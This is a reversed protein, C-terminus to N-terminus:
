ARPQRAALFGELAIPLGLCRTGHRLLYGRDGLRAIGAEIEASTRDPVSTLLAPVSTVGDAALLIYAEIPDLVDVHPHAPSARSDFVAVRGDARLLVLSSSAHSSRWADVAEVLVRSYEPLSRTARHDAEFFYALDNVTEAPLGRHVDSYAPYPRVREFGAESADEFNPSFRDLRIESCRAPPPLHHLFPLLAAMQRYEAPDEGPFGCLINWDVAIDLEMCWKLLQVNQLVSVGKRMIDLIQDSLSEIGPQIRTVGAARLLEVRERTVNSKIEYFLSVPLDLDALRPLLTAYYRHDMINDVFAVEAGPRALAISVVEAIVDEPPRSRFAMTAGNLGCFTCHHKAGWWCGRSSETPVETPVDTMGLSERERFYDDFSPPVYDDLDTVLRAQLFAGLSARPDVFPLAGLDLPGGGFALLTQVLPVALLDAEGSVVADFVPYAEALARGMAGECNAGGVMIRLSPDIARLRTAVAITALNQQYVTTLGVVKPGHRLIESAAFDVYDAAAEALGVVSERIAALSARNAEAELARSVGDFTRELYARDLHRDDPHLAHSFIWEGLLDTTRPFGAVLQRYGDTGVKAAYDLTFHRTRTSIGASELRSQLLGLALSPSELPGFPLSVLVVEATERSRRSKSSGTTM